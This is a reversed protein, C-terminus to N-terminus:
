TASRGYFIKDSELVRAKIADSMKLMENRWWQYEEATMSRCLKYGKQHGCVRGASADALSRLKRKLNETPPQGIEDLIAKATLWDRGALFAVFWEVNRALSPAPTAITFDLEPQPAAIM